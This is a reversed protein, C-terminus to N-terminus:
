FTAFYSQMHDSVRQHMSWVAQDIFTHSFQGASFRDTELDIDHPVLDFGWFALNLSGTFAWVMNLQDCQEALIKIVPIFSDPLM